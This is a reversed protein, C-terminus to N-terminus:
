SRKLYGLDPPIPINNGFSDECYGSTALITLDNLVRKDGTFTALKKMEIDIKGAGLLKIIEKFM